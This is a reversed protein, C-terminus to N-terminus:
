RLGRPLLSLSASLKDAEREALKGTEREEKKTFTFITSNRKVLVLSACLLSLPDFSM